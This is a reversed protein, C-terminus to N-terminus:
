CDVILVDGPEIRDGNMSDGMVRVFYTAEANAICLDNLDCVREMYDTAPSPFGAQILSQFFPIKLRSSVNAQVMYDDCDGLLPTIM